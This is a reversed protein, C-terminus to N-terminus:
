STDATSSTVWSLNKVKNITKEDLDSIEKIRYPNLPDFPDM